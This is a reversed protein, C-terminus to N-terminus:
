FEYKLGMIIAWRSSTDVNPIGSGVSGASSNFSSYRYSSCISSTANQAVGAGDACQVSVVRDGTGGRSSGFEEVVGWRDNLLNLFNKFDITFSAKNETFPLPLEQAMQLDVQSVSRNTGFGKPTIQNVPLGERNVLNRFNTLTAASDFFVTAGTPSTFRLPNAADPANVDPVYLLQDSRNVGFVPGRGGTADTM